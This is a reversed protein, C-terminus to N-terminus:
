NGAGLEGRRSKRIDFVREYFFSPTVMGMGSSISRGFYTTKSKFDSASDSKQPVMTSRGISNM